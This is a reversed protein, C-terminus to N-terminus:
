LFHMEGKWNTVQSAHSRFFYGVPWFPFHAPWSIFSQQIFGYYRKFLYGALSTWKWITKPCVHEPSRLTSFTPGSFASITVQCTVDEIVHEFDSGEHGSTRAPWTTWFRGSIWCIIFTDADEGHLCCLLLESLFCVSNSQWTGGKLTSVSM